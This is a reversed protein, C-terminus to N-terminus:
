RSLMIEWYIDRLKVLKDLAVSASREEGQENPDGSLASRPVGRKLFREMASDQHWM